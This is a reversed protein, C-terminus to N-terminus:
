VFDTACPETTEGLIYAVDVVDGSELADWNDKIHQHAVRLTRQNGWDFAAYTFRSQPGTGGRINDTMFVYRQQDEFTRGYGSHSLIKREREGQPDSVRHAMVLLTTASDSIEFLKTEIM